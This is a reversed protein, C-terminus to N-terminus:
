QAPSGQNLDGGIAALDQQGAAFRWLHGVGLDRSRSRLVGPRDRRAVGSRKGVASWSREAVVARTTIM